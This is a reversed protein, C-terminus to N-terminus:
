NVEQIYMDGDRTIFGKWIRGSFYTVMRMAEKRTIAFPMTGAIVSISKANKIMRRLETRGSLEFSEPIHEM